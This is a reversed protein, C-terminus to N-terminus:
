MCIILSVCPQISEGPGKMQLQYEIQAELDRLSPNASYNPHSHYWGALTLGDNHM